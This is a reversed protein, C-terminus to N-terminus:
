WRWQRGPLISEVLGWVSAVWGIVMYPLFLGYQWWHSLCLDGRMRALLIFRAQSLLLHSLAALWFAWILCSGLGGTLPVALMGLSTLAAWLHGGVEPWRRYRLGYLFRNRFWRSRQHLYEGLTTCYATRVRSDPVFRICYGAERLQRSLAYDTGIPAPVSFGGVRELVDRRVAANVGDLTDVCMPAAAQMWLHHSWQFAVLPHTKQGELPQRTGTTAAEAGTRIPLLTREFTEDDLVCDADTLFIVSGTAHELCRQLARQKGEGPRQELIVAGPAGRRALELTGDTGGACVVLEVDPYRLRRISALCDQIYEAENWAPLLISVRPTRAPRVEQRRHSYSVFVSTRQRRWLYLNLLAALFIGGILVWGAHSESWLWLSQLFSAMDEILRAQGRERSPTKPAAASPRRGWGGGRGLPSGEGLPLAVGARQSNGASDSNGPLPMARGSLHVGDGSGGAVAARPSPQHGQDRGDPLPLSQRGLRLGPSPRPPRPPASPHYGFEMAGFGHATAIGGHLQVGRLLWAQTPELRLDMRYRRAWEMARLIDGAGAVWQPYRNIRGNRYVVQPFSGDPFRFRVIFATAALAADRYTAQGTREYGLFLAPICRAIYFPFYRGMGGRGRVGQDIAGDLPSGPVRVQTALIGDLTPLVYRDVVETEGTLDAWALLAEAVTAAKNPVFTPDDPRNRFTRGDKDWLTSLIYGWLNRRAVEAFTEWTPDGRDRLVRALFLLALDCAAEHPTGGTGPNAEFCSARFNGSPLQGQLLDEGARRAKELWRGDGTNRYLNLYGLIIGEYRWDLGLGTYFLNDQWWHVVPGGYGDPGRMTELWAELRFAAFALVQRSIDTVM